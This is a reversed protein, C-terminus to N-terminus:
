AMGSLRQRNANESATGAIFPPRAILSVGFGTGASLTPEPPGQLNQLEPARMRIRWVAPITRRPSEM